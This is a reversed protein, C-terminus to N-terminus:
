GKPLLHQNFLRYIRKYEDLWSSAEKFGHDEVPFVALEWNDKGLEILRQSLRVIDQFQVNVDVMGHLMLLPDRLGSAFEIPSSRRYAISDLSPTNLINSTYGHNYHAWDTVSRLAAGCAFTGPYKFLAMLTIFGGYSGGYIGIRDPDVGLSDVMYRAGDVQDELDRSGMHRYIATRWDRGYGSSARFDMDLITYGEDCLLNHFMYERSYNSWWNHVNQLYGAGHVFIVAAGNAKGSSPRYLRAPVQQGDSAPVWVIEPTRWPYAKFDPSQSSTLQRMPAGPKNDMFYVEWPTNSTSFRVALHREDPSIAVTHNGPISTIRKLERTKLVLHYFHQEFPSEKNATIFFTSRDRSLQVDQVEWNGNTLASKTGQAIDQIYLHAYGTAESLYWVTNNDAWGYLGATGNWGHIGPGGIWATDRQHDLHKLTRSVPDYLAIWREKNDESKIIYLANSGDPSWEPGHIHVPKPKTYQAEFPTTDRWYERLYAPKDLIGPLLNMQIDYVTDGQIDYHHLSYGHFVEDVKPRGRLDSTYGSSTIHQTVSTPKHAAEKFKVFTVHRHHPDTSIQAHRLDETYITKPHEPFRFQKDQATREDEKAKATALYEFLRLQDNELYQEAPSLKPEKKESGSRIDTLQKIKGTSQQLSFRQGGQSYTITEAPFSWQLNSEQAVTATIRNTTNAKKDYVFIDGQCTYLARQGKEDWILGSAPLMAVALQSLQVTDGQLTAKYKPTLLHHQPNWNFYIGSGDPLWSPMGPSEGIFEDGRMIQELSLTSQGHLYGAFLFSAFILIISRM